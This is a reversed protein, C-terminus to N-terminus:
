DAKEMGPTYPAISTVACTYHTGVDQSIVTDGRQVCALGNIGSVSKIGLNLKFPLRPCYGLLTLHFKRHLQDEVILTKNDLAKFSWVRGIQLCATSAQAGSALMALALAAPIVRSVVKEKWDTGSTRKYKM